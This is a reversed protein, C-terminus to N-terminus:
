CINKAGKKRKAGIEETTFCAKSIGLEELKDLYNVVTIVYEAHSWTLPAVGVQYGSNPDLQESLVGSSQAHYVCWELIEKVAEMDEESKAKAVYYQARWLTCVFWPNGTTSDDVRFYDDDQYRGTGGQGRINTLSDDLAKLTNQVKEDDVDLMKFRWPGFFSSADITADIELQGQENRILSNAFYGREDDYLYKIAAKKIEESAKRFRNCQSSKGLIHAFNAAAQLAGYVASATFTHVGLKREWLDYSIDPLKSGKFRYKILFNAAKNILSNYIEEIFDLDQRLSYHHWLAILTLATEDEQIPLQVKGQHLWPHWSSGLSRDPLFKHGIYGEDSIVENCFEFWTKTMDYNGIKDLAMVVIATDRPWTYAYHDKGANLSGSDGSALISGRNDVQTRIVLLSTKFLDIVGKSLGHFTYGKKNVWAKWYDGTTKILHAPGKDLIYDNLEKVHPISKGVAVWYFVTKSKKAPLKMSFSIVSDVPGHEILNESLKGSPAEDYSGTHQDFHTQKVTFDDFGKSGVRGNILFNRRGKYHIVTKSIPDYYATNASGRGQILFEQSFFIKCERESKKLNKIVVKRVFISSENYVVSDMELEIGLGEHKTVYHGVMTEPRYDMRSKFGPDKLDVFKGDILLGIKHSHGEVHNEQGVYPYYWDVVQNYQDLGVLMDGNGLVVSHAM